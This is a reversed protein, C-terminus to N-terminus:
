SQKNIKNLIKIMKELRVDMDEIVINENETLNLKGKPENNNKLSIFDRLDCYM